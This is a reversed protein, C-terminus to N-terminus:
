ITYCLDSLLFADVKGSKLPPEEFRGCRGGIRGNILKRNYLMHPTGQRTTCHVVHANGQPVICERAIRKHSHTCQVCMTMWTTWCYIITYKTYGYEYLVTVKFHLICLSCAQIPIQTSIKSTNVNKLAVQIRFHTSIYFVNILITPLVLQCSKTSVDGDRPAPVPTPLTQIQIRIQTQPLM